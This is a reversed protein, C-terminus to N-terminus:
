ERVAADADEIVATLVKQQAKRLHNHLTPSSVDMSAALEEATSGRPWEFYGSFYAARLVSRQKETLSDTMVQRPGSSTQTPREIERKSVLESDAFVDTLDEVVARVDTRRSFVGAVEAVGDEVTMTEVTGGRAVLTSVVTQDTVVFELLAGSAFDRILRAETVSDTDDIADLVARVEAGRVTVFYLLAHDEVPVVGEVEFGCGLRQATAVLFDQSDTTRFALEVGTDALLLRKRELSTIVEGVRRAVDTLLERDASEVSPHAVCLLGNVRENSKLPAVVLACGTLRGGVHALVNRIVIAQSEGEFSDVGGAEDVIDRLDTEGERHNAYTRPVGQEDCVWVTRYEGALVECTAREVEERTTADALETGLAHVCSLLADSRASPADNPETGEQGHPARLPEFADIIAARSPPELYPDLSELSKWGGVARVVQPHIGECELLHHAYYQRLDRPSVSQLREDDTRAAVDTVLMQIRRPSVDFVDDDPDRDNVAVFKRLDHAVDPLM